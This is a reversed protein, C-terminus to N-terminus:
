VPSGGTQAKWQYGRHNFGQMIPLRGYTHNGCFPLSSLNMVGTLAILARQTHVTLPVTAEWKEGDSGMKYPQEYPFLVYVPLWTCHSVQRGEQVYGRGRARHSSPRDRQLLRLLTDPDQIREAPLPLLLVTLM